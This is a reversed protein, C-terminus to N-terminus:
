GALKGHLLNIAGMSFPNVTGTVPAVFEDAGIDPTSGDRADGEWDVALVGATGEGELDSGAKLALDMADDTISVFQDSATLNDLGAESGSDDSAAYDASGGDLNLYDKHGGTGGYHFCATNTVKVFRFGTKESNVDAEQRIATSHRCHVADTDSSNGQIALGWQQFFSNDITITDVGTVSDADLGKRVSGGGFFLVSDVRLSFDGQVSIGNAVGKGHLEVGDVHFENEGHRIAAFASTNEEVVAGSSPTGDHKAGTDYKIGRYRTADTTAGAITTGDGMEYPSDTTNLLAWRQEDAAVLDNDTAAEWTDLDAYDLGSGIQEEYVTVM